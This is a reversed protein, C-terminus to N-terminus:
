SSEEKQENEKFNELTTLFGMMDDLLQLLDRSSINTGSFRLNDCKRFFANLFAPRGEQTLIHGTSMQPMEEFESATMARCNSGSMCSLFTRFEDSLKDLVIRKDGGNIIEDHLNKQTKYISKFLKRLKWKETLEKLLFRGKFIFFITLLLIFIILTLSGYILLATGPM